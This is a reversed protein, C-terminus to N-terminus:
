CLRWDLEGAGAHEKLMVAFMEAYESLLKSSVGSQPAFIVGLVSRTHSTLKAHMSDKVPNGLPISDQETGRCICILGELNIEQGAQNFTYREGPRGYRLCVRDSTVELDLLSAPLGSYLSIFNNIDVLNNIFPFRDEKAAQALYESAPKSRGSPKFGGSRLLDRVAAKLAAPPFEMGRREQVLSNLKDLLPAPSPAVQVGRACVMGAALGKDKLVNQIEMISRVMHPEAPTKWLLM